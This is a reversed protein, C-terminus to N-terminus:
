TKIHQVNPKGGFAGRTSDASDAHSRTCSESKSFKYKLVSDGNRALACVQFFRSHCDVGVGYRDVILELDV